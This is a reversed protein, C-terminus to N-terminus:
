SASAVASAERLTTHAERATKFDGREVLLSALVGLVISWFPAAVGLIPINALCVFFAVMAGTKFQGSFAGKFASGFVEFMALGALVAAFEAPVFKVADVAIKASLAFLFWLAGEVFSAIFRLNKDPGSAPSSCIATSPGATVANHAGLAANLVSAISPVIYMANIPPHYGEAILVGLAQINQV